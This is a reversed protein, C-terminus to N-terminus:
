YLYAYEHHIYSCIGYCCMCVYMCVYMFVYMCVYTISCALAHPCHTLSRSLCVRAPAQKIQPVDKCVGGRGSVRGRAYVGHEASLCPLLGFKVVLRHPLAFGVDRIRQFCAPLVSDISLHKHARLPKAARDRARGKGKEEERERRWKNERACERKRERERKRM